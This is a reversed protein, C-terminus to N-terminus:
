TANKWPVTIYLDDRVLNKNSPLSNKPFSKIKGVVAVEFIHRKNRGMGGHQIKGIIVVMNKNPAAAKGASSTFRM